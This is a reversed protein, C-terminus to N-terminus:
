SSRASQGGVTARAADDLHKWTKHHVILSVCAVSVGYEEALATETVGGAAHRERIALAVTATIKFNGSRTAVRTTRDWGPLHSWSIGRIIHSVQIQTIGYREALASQTAGDAYAARIARAGDESVKSGKHREGRSQRGKAVMDAVNDAHSGLFLHAPNVCAKVDCKHLMWMGHPVPGRYLEWAVKTAQVSKQRRRAVMVGFRGYTPKGYRDVGTNGTWLWCGSNPEPM